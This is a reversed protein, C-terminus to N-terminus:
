EILAIDSSDIFVDDGYDTKAINNLYGEHSELKRKKDGRKNAQYKAIYVQPSWAPELFDRLAGGYCLFSVRFCRNRMKGGDFKFRIIMWSVALNSTFNGILREARGGNHESFSFLCM